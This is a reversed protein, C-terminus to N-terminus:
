IKIQTVPEDFGVKIQVCERKRVSCKRKEV